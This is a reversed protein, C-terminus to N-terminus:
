STYCVATGSHTPIQPPVVHGLHQYCSCAIIEKRVRFGMDAFQLTVWVKRVTYQVVFVKFVPFFDVSPRPQGPVTQVPPCNSSNSHQATGSTECSPHSMAWAQLTNWPPWILGRVGWCFHDNTESVYSLATCYTRGHSPQSYSPPHPYIVLSCLTEGTPQVWHLCCLGRAIEQMQRGDSM